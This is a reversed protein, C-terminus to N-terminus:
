GRSSSTTSSRIPFRFSRRRPWSRRGFTPSRGSPRKRISSRSAGRVQEPAFPPVAEGPLIDRFAHGMYFMSVPERRHVPPVRLWYTKTEGASITEAYELRLRAFSVDSKDYSQNRWDQEPTAGVDILRICKDKMAGGALSEPKDIKTGEPFVWIASLQAHRLRSSATVGASAEIAGDGDVDRADDFQVFVPQDKHATM